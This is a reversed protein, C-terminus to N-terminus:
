CMMHRIAHGRQSIPTVVLATDTDLVVVLMSFSCMFLQCTRGIAFCDTAIARRGRAESSRLYWIGLLSEFLGLYAATDPDAADTDLVFVHYTGVEPESTEDNQPPEMKGKKERTKARTTQLPSPSFQLGRSHQSTCDYRFSMMIEFSIIPWFSHWFHAAAAFHFYCLLPLWISLGGARPSSCTATRPEFFYNKRFLFTAPWM